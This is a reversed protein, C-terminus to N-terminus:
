IEDKEYKSKTDYSKEIWLKLTGSLGAVNYNVWIKDKVANNIDQNSKSKFMDPTNKIVEGYFGAKVENKEYYNIDPKDYFMNYYLTSIAYPIKNNEPVFKNFMQKLKSKHFCRPLHTEYLFLPRGNSKLAKLSANITRMWKTKPDDYLKPNNKYEAGAYITRLDNLYLDGLLLMDDYIFVFEEPILPDDMATRLKNIVDYYNEYHKQYNFFEFLEKPYTRKVIVQRCSLWDIKKTTYLVVDFDFQCYKELSRLTYRLENNEWTSGLGLPIIFTGKNHM